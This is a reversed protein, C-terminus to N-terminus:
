QLPSKSAYLIDVVYVVSDGKDIQPNNSGEPFSDKPTCVLLVRSGVNKGVLGNKWCPITAALQGTDPQAYHDELQKGTKWSASRYHVSISDDAALKRNISGNILPQAVSSTPAATKPVTIVPKGDKDAVTPLGAKPPVAAGVPGTLQTGVIDVVFILTDGVKIGIQPQGGAEDYGDAGPMAILVRDGVKKGELGKKFGAVVKDLPFTTPQGKNDRWTSNFHQGTRGNVGFYQVDVTGNAPVTPGNGAKLVKSRTQDVAYPAKVKVTPASGPNGTVTIADLSAQPKITSTPTPTPTPTASQAATSSPAASAAPDSPSPSPSAAPGGCAALTLALAGSVAFLSVRSRTLM